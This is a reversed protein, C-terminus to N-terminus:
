RWVTLITSMVMMGAVDYGADIFFLGTHRGAFAYHPASRTAVLGLSLFLGVRLGELVNTSGLQRVVYSLAFALCLSAVASTVKGVHAQYRDPTKRGILALWQTGFMSPSYWAMGILMNAIAAALIAFYNMEVTPLTM